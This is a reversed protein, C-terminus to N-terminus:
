NEVKSKKIKACARKKLEEKQETSLNLNNLIAEAQAELTKAILSSVKKMETYWIRRIPVTSYILTIITTAIIYIEEADLKHEHQFDKLLVQLRLRLDEKTLILCEKDM